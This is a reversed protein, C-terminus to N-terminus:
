IEQKISELGEKGMVIFYVICDWTIQNLIKRTIKLGDTGGM